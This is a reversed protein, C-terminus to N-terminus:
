RDLIAAALEAWSRYAPPRAEAPAQPDFLFTATDRPFAADTFVDLLDDIAHTCRLAAIRAIKEDRTSEFFVDEADFAHPGILANARLWAQAAVRLDAGAPDAAAFQSKHSVLFVRAGSQRARSLFARVGPFAAARVLEAGYVRAQIRTWADNGGPTARLRDRLATKAGGGGPVAIGAAAAARAFADGYSVITNDFDIAIRL